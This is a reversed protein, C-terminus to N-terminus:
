SFTVNKWGQDQGASAYVKGAGACQAKFYTTVTASEDPDLSLQNPSVYPVAKMACGTAGSLVAVTAATTGTNTVTWSTTHVTSNNAYSGASGGHPSVTIHSNNCGEVCASAASAPALLAATGILVVAIRKWM